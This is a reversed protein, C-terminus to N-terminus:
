AAELDRLMHELTVRRAPHLNAIMVMARFAASPSLMAATAPGASNEWHEGKNAAIAVLVARHDNM